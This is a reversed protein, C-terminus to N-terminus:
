SRYSGILKRGYQVDVVFGFKKPTIVVQKFQKNSKISFCQNTPTIIGQKLPKKKITENFFIVQALKKKYYPPKPKSLFGTSNKNYATLAKRFNSWDSLCKRITQKATKTNHLNKFSPENKVLKSLLSIDPLAITWDDNKLNSFWQKRMHYNCKNYLEKSQKCLEIIQPTSKIQHREVLIM